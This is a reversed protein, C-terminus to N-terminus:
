KKSSNYLCFASTLRTEGRTESLGMWLGKIDTCLIGNKTAKSGSTTFPCSLMQLPQLQTVQKFSSLESVGKQKGM